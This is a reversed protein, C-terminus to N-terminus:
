KLSTLQVSVVFKDYKSLVFMIKKKIPESAGCIVRKLEEGTLHGLQRSGEGVTNRLLDWFLSETNKIGTQHNLGFYRQIQSLHLHVPLVLGLSSCTRCLSSASNVNRCRCGKGVQPNLFHLVQSLSILTEPRM